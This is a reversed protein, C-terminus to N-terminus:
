EINKFESKNIIGYDYINNIEGKYINKYNERNAQLSSIFYNIIGSEEIKVSSHCDPSLSPSNNLPERWLEKPKYIISYCFDNKIHFLVIINKDGESFNKKEKLKISNKCKMM